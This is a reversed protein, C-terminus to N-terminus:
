NMIRKKRGRLILRSSPKRKNRTKGGKAPKGWPSCPHRGGNSRGEGGGLPHAVPNMAKGRVKPRRGLWRNRGAKGLSINSHEVNGVQGITARCRAHVKRREGSPLVLTAYDGDRALLQIQCGASRGLKAGQGPQMEVNHVFLGLPINALPMANGVQPEVSEGSVVMAGVKLGVPAVIYAKAGDMYHLLAIRASRGPDYEIAAVKAPVDTKSRRFDVVRLKRKHGGGRRRSTIRGINNRGGSKRQPKLLSRTTAKATIESLDPATGFRRGPSTPRYRVIPM